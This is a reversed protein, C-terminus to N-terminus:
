FVMSNLLLSVSEMFLLLKPLSLMKPKLVLLGSQIKALSDQSQVQVTLSTLILEMTNTLQVKQPTMTNIFIAPLLSDASKQPFGFILPDQISSLELNNLLIELISKDLIISSIGMTSLM